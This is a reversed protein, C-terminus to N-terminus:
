FVIQSFNAQVVSSIDPPVDEMWITLSPSNIAWRVLAHAVRNGQRCVHVFSCCNFSPTLAKVDEILHGHLALSRESNNLDKSITDSDEEFVASTIGIELAFELARRTALAEVQAVTTPQPIQQSLSAMVAGESNRIVVELGARGTKTFLAGDYNVKLVGLDPPEWKTHM